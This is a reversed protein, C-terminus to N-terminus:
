INTWVSHHSLSPKFTFVEACFHLSKLLSAVYIAVKLPLPSVIVGCCPKSEFFSGHVGDNVYYVYSPEEREEEAEVEEEEEEQLKKSIVNVVAVHTSCAFYRGLFLYVSEFLVAQKASDEGPEAIIRLNHFEKRSFYAEIGRNIFSAIKKFLQGSGKDGPYGGGIDLLTFSYGISSAFQFMESSLKLASEFALPTQCCSGVHFSCSLHYSHLTCPFSTVLALGRM